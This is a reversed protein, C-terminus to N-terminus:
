QVEPPIPCTCKAFKDDFVRCGQARHRARERAIAELDAETLARRTYRPADSEASLESM